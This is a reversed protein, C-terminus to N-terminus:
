AFAKKIVKIQYEPNWSSDIESYCNNRIIDRRGSNDIFWKSISESLSVVDGRKFFSGTSGPLISEFEPMQWKWDDHTIAPCGFMMVHMATLGINGPAVCLDANYIFQANLEEDYCEGYFWVQKMLHLEKVREELNEREPGDGVFVMNYSEGKERLISMADLILFLQKVPTLRGLFILVPNNNGFHDSYIPSPQIKRRIALQKTHALSNHITLVRDAEFGDRIMLSRAYDGYVLVCDAMKLLPRKFLVREIWSEKGYYGHTWLVVRKKRYLLKKLLLFVYLSLNRSAGMMIYREFDRMLLRILGRTWYFSGIRVTALYSCKTLVSTDFPKILTNDKEFFWECEYEANIRSYIEERYKSPINFYLCLNAMM